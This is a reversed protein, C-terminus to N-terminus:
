YWEAEVSSDNHYAMFAYRVSDWIHNFKDIAQNIMIGQIEKFKYNEVEVKIKDIYKNQIFHIRYSRMLNLWFIVGKTKSVKFAEYGMDQLSVVMEVASEANSYKDASDCTIPIYKEVENMELMQALEDPNDYPEYSLVEVYLDNGSVWVRTLVSPDTTFGFDLGYIYGGIVDVPIESKDIYKVNTFIVGQMAGRLGLGYVRWMYLDATGNKVNEPHPPPQNKEDIPKGNYYIEKEGVIEYSNPLFPEYAMIENKQQIPILPNGRFTSRLYGVDPRTIVKKYVWHETVSPNYDVIWFKSCRMISQQFVGEDIPLVENFYIIDSTNGHIKNANDAGIFNVYSKGIKFSDVEKLRNFPNDLGLEDLLIRFDKYITTKFENYTEKVINVTLPYISDKCVKCIFKLASFTKGSRASGELVVGKKGAVLKEGEYKQGYFCEYLFLYNDNVDGKVPNNLKDWEETVLQTELLEYYELLEDDSLSALVDKDAM